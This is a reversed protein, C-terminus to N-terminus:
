PAMLGYITAAVCLGTVVGLFFSFWGPGTDNWVVPALHNKVAEQREWFEGLACRSDAAIDASVDDIRM